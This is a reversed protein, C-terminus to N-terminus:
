WFPWYYSLFFSLYMFNFFSTSFQCTCQLSVSCCWYPQGCVLCDDLRLRNKFHPLAFVCPCNWSIKKLLLIRQLVVGCSEDLVNSWMGATQLLPELAGIGCDPSRVSIRRILHSKLLFGQNANRKVIIFLPSHSDPHFGLQSSPISATFLVNQNAKTPSGDSAARCPITIIMCTQYELSPLSWRSKSCYFLRVSM